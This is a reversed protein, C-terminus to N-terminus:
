RIELAYLRDFPICRGDSLVLCRRCSDVTKVSATMHVYEGGSKRGDEVFVTLEVEPLERQAVAHLAADLEAVRDQELQVAPRTLRATEEIVQEYGTLAAFSSFQAARDLLSMRARGPIQPRSLHLIDEYKNKSEM